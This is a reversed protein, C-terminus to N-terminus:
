IRCIAVPGPDTWTANGTGSNYTVIKSTTSLFEIVVPLATTAFTTIQNLTFDWSVQTTESAGALTNVLSALIPLAIRANSGPRMFNISMGGTYLPVNSSPTIIGAAAQNFLTWGNINSYATAAIATPGLTNNGLIPTSLTIPIGGWLPTSQSTNVVGGELQYRIAPDDLFTGAVFGETSIVFGGSTGTTAMPNLSIPM